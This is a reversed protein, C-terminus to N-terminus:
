GANINRQRSVPVSMAFKVKSRKVELIPKYPEDHFMQIDLEINRAADTKSIDDPFDSM